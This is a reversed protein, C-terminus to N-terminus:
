DKTSTTGGQWGRRPSGLRNDAPNETRYHVNSSPQPFTYTKMSSLAQKALTLVLVAVPCVIWCVSNSVCTM